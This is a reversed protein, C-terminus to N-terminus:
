ERCGAGMDSIDHRNLHVNCDSAKRLTDHALACVFVVLTYCFCRGEKYLIHTGRLYGWVFTGM